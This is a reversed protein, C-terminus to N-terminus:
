PHRVVGAASFNGNRRRARSTRYPYSGPVRGGSDPGGHAVGPPGPVKSVLGASPTCTPRPLPM